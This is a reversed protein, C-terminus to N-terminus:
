RRRLIKRRKIKQMKLTIVNPNPYLEQIGVLLDYSKDLDDLIEYCNAMEFIALTKLDNTENKVIEEFLPIAQSCKGLSGLSNALELAAKRAYDTSPFKNILERYSQAAKEFQAQLFYARAVRYMIFDADSRSPFAELTERYNEAAKSYDSFREFYINAIITQAERKIDKDETRKILLKYSKLAEEPLDLYLHQIIAIRNLADVGFKGLPDRQIIKEFEHISADYKKEIYLKDALQFQNKSSNVNCAILGFLSICAIFLKIFIRM